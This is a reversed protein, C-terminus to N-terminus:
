SEMWRVVTGYAFIEIANKKGFFGDALASRYEFQTCIVAHGGLEVCQEKLQQKVGDFALRPNTPNLFTEQTCDLAFICDVVQYPYDINGTTVIINQTDTNDM